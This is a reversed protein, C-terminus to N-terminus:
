GIQDGAIPEHSWSFFPEGGDRTVLFIEELWNRTRDDGPLQLHASVVMGDELGCDQRSGTIEMDIHELGLGHFFIYGDDANAIGARRLAQRGAAQLQSIKAGPRMANQVEAMAAATAT